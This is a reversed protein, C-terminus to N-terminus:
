TILYPFVVKLMSGKRVTLGIEVLPPINHGGFLALVGFNESRGVARHDSYDHKIRDM